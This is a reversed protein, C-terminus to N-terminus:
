TVIGRARLAAVQEATYGLEEQLVADTHEGLLPVGGEPSFAEGDVLYGGNTVTVDGLATPVQTLLRRAAPQGTALVEPLDRVGGGVTETASFVADWEAATRTLLRAEVAAVVEQVRENFATTSLEALDNLELARLISRNHRPLYGALMVYGDKARFRGLLPGERDSAPAPADGTSAAIHTNRNLLLMAVDQMAVDVVAGEGTQRLNLVAALVAAAAHMGTAYDLVPGGSRIPGDGRQTVSMYGSTAQVVDDFGPRHGHPGGAGFASISVFVLEPKRARLAQADLGKEALAGPHYNQVVVDVNLALETALQQGAKASLDICISRKGANQAAFGTGLGKALQADTGGWGRVMDGRSSEVKTVDAGLLALQYTCYPGALVHTFDLVKLGALPKQM